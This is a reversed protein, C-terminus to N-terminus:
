LQITEAITTRPTNIHSEAQLSFPMDSERANKVASLKDFAPCHLADRFLMEAEKLVADANHCNNQM